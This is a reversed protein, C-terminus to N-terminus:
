SRAEEGRLGRELREHLANALHERIAPVPILDIVDGAFAHIMVNRAEVKGIGRTRLYFLAEEDLRGITAGHTCKVDNAHIELQPRTYVVAEDGLILNKNSQKADTKQAGDRVVIRGNFVARARGALLGKYMEWSPCQPKAHDLWTHNDVHQAGDAIYFGYLRCEAGPGDLRSGIDNRALSAGLSANHSVIRAGLAQHGTVTAVHRAAPGEAQIKIHEIHARDRAILETVANTLYPGTGSTVFSEVLTIRAGAHAVVLTRPHVAVPSAEPVAVHVVHLPIASEVGAEITVRLGDVFLATNLAVFAANEFSAAEGFEQDEGDGGRALVAALSEVRVGRPLGTLRSLAPDFRGNVFVARHPLLSALPIADLESAAVTAPAAIITAFPAVASVDTQRWDEDTAKPIGLADFRARASARLRALRGTAEASAAGNM